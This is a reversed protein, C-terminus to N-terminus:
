VIDRFFRSLGEIQGFFFNKVFLKGDLVHQSVMQICILKSTEPKEPSMTIDPEIAEEIIAEVPSSKVAAKRSKVPNGTNPTSKKLSETETKSQGGAQMSRRTTRQMVATASISKRGRKKPSAVLTPEEIIASLKSADSLQRKRGAPQVSDLNSEERGM